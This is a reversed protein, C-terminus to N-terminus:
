IEVTFHIGQWKRYAVLGELKRRIPWEDDGAFKAVRPVFKEFHETAHHKEVESKATQALAAHDAIERAYLDTQASKGVANLAHNMAAVPVLAKAHNLLDEEIDPLERIRRNPSLDVLTEEVAKPEILYNEIEWRRMVKIDPYPKADDFVQDDTEHLLDWNKDAALKDRDILGFVRNGQQRQRSVTAVVAACGGANEPKLFDIQGLKEVFWYEKFIRADSDDEVYILPTAKQTTLVSDTSAIHKNKFTAM